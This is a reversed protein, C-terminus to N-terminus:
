GLEGSKVRGLFAAFATGSFELIPRSPDAAQKTDRIARGTDAFGIEVCNGGNTGSRSSKRWTNYPHEPM